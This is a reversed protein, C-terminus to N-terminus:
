QRARRQRPHAPAGGLDAIRHVGDHRRRVAVPVDGVFTALRYTGDGETDGLVVGAAITAHGCFSVEAQPSFYRLSRSRGSAPTVFATESYGVEAAIRQMEDASPFADGVWVGAPSGGAPDSSFASYRYLMADAM